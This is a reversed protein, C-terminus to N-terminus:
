GEDNLRQVYQEVIARQNELSERAGNPDVDFSLDYKRSSNRIRFELENRQRILDQLEQDTDMAQNIDKQLSFMKVYREGKLREVTEDSSNAYDRKTQELAKKMEEVMQKNAEVRPAARPAFTKDPTTKMRYEVLHIANQKKAIDNTLQAMQAHLKTRNQNYFLAKELRREPSLNSHANLIENQREVIRNNIERQRSYLALMKEMEEDEVRQEAREVMQHLKVKAAHDAVKEFSEEVADIAKRKPLSLEPEEDSEVTYSLPEKEFVEESRKEPKPPTGIVGRGKLKPTPTDFLSSLKKPTAPTITHFQQSESEKLVPPTNMRNEYVRPTSPNLEVRLPSTIIDDLKEKVKDFVTERFIQNERRKIANLDFVEHQELQNQQHLNKAATRQVSFIENNEDINFHKPKINTGQAEMRAMIEGKTNRAKIDENVKDYMYHMQNKLMDIERQNAIERMIEEKSPEKPQQIVPTPQSAPSAIVTSGGTPTLAIKRVLAEMSSILSDTRSTQTPERESTRASTVRRFRRLKRKLLKRKQPM